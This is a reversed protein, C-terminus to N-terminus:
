NRAAGHKSARILGHLVGLYDLCGETFPRLDPRREGFEELRRKLDENPYMQAPDVDRGDFLRTLYGAVHADYLVLKARLDGAEEENLPVRPFRMKKFDEFWWRLERRTEEPLKM